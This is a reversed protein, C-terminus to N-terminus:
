KGGSSPSLYIRRFKKRKRRFRHVTNLITTTKIEHQITKLFNEFTLQDFSERNNVIIEKWTLTLQLGDNVGAKPWYSGINIRVDM